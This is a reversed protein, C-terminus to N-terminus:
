LLQLISSIHICQICLWPNLVNITRSVKATLIHQGISISLHWPLFTIFFWSSWRYAAMFGIGYLTQLLLLHLFRCLGCCPALYFIIQSESIVLIYFLPMIVFWTMYQLLNLIRLRENLTHTEIFLLLFFYFVPFFDSQSFLNNHTFQLLNKLVDILAAAVDDNRAFWIFLLAYTIISNISTLFTEWLASLSFAWSWGLLMRM